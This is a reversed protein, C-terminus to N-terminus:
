GFSLISGKKKPDDPLIVKYGLQEIGKIIKEEDIGKTNEFIVEDNSFDVHINEMGMSTLLNNVTGACSVCNMGKVDWKTAKM